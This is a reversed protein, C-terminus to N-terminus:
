TLIENFNTRVPGILLIVDNIWFIAERRDPSLSGDSDILNLNSVCIHMVLGWQTLGTQASYETELTAFTFSNENLYNRSKM